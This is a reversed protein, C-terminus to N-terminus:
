AIINVANDKIANITHVLSDRTKGEFMKIFPVPKDFPPKQLDMINEIYGNQEIYNIVKYIFQIQRQNLSADNIFISFADM